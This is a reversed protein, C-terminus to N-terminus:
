AVRKVNRVVKRVGAVMIAIEMDVVKRLYNMSIEANGEHKIYIREAAAFARVAVDDPSQGIARALFLVEDICSGCDEGMAKDLQALRLAVREIAVARAPRSAEIDASTVELKGAGGCVFCVGNAVRTWSLNGRGSCKSCDVKTTTKMGM